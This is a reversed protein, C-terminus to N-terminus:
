RPAEVSYHAELWPHLSEGCAPCPRGLVFPGPVPEGCGPCHGAYCRDQIVFWTAFTVALAIAVAAGAWYWPSALSVIGRMLILDTAPPLLVLGLLAAALIILLVVAQMLCREAQPLGYWTLMRRILAVLAAATSLFRNM